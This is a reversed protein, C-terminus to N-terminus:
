CPMWARLGCRVSHTNIGVGANAPDSEIDAVVAGHTTSRSRALVCGDVAGRYTSDVTLAWILPM